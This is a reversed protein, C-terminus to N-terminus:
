KGQGDQGQPQEGDDDVGAHQHEGGPQALMRWHMEVNIGEEPGGDQPCQNDAQDGENGAGEGAGPLLWGGEPRAPAPVPLVGPLYRPGQWLGGNRNRNKDKERQGGTGNGNGSGSGSGSGSASVPTRTLRYLGRTAVTGAGAVAELPALVGRLSPDSSKDAVAAGDLYVKLHHGPGLGPSGDPTVPDALTMTVRHRTDPNPTGDAGPVWDQSHELHLSPIGAPLDTNGTASGATLLFGVNYATEAALTVAINAAHDGGQSYGTLIITDGADAEAMRLAEGVAAAVFRSREARSEGNGVADFPNSGAVASFGQTGPLTVVYTNRDGSVISLVEIVGPAQAERLVESRDLLGRAGGKLVVQEDPGPLKEATVPRPRGLGGAALTGMVGQLALYDYPPEILQESVARSFFAEAGKGRLLGTLLFAIGMVPYSEVRGEAELYQQTAKRVAAACDESETVCVHLASDAADLAALVRGAGARLVYAARDALVGRRITSLQDAAADLQNAAANLDQYEVTIGAVGGTVTYRDGGPQHGGM